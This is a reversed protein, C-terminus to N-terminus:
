LYVEFSQADGDEAPEVRWGAGKLAARYGAMAEGTPGHMSEDGCYAVHFPDGEGEVAFGNLHREDFDAFGARRLQERIREADRDRVSWLPRDFKGYGYEPDDDDTTM